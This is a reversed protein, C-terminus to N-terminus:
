ASVDGMRVEGAFAPAWDRLDLYRRAARLWNGNPLQAGAKAPSTSPISAIM